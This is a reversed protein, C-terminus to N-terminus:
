ITCASCVIKSNHAEDENGGENRTRKRLSTPNVFSLKKQPTQLRTYYVGTKLGVSNGYALLSIVHHNLREVGINDVNIHINFSQGQDIFRQRDAALDIENRYDVEYVTKLCDQIHKPLESGQVSGRNTLIYKHLTDSIPEGTLKEIHPNVVSLSVNNLNYSYYNAFPVEFSETVNTIISSGATPMACTTLINRVGHLVIENRLSAWDLTLTAPQRPYHQAYLDFQFLGRALPTKEFEKHPGYQKALQCSTKLTHYYITEYIKSNFRKFEISDRTWMKLMQVDSLGNAGIGIARYKSAEKARESVYPQDVLTDVAEALIDVTSGLSEYDYDGNEKLFRLLCITGLTCVAMMKDNTVQMIEACLNSTEITGLHAQNSMYNVNDKNVIYVRGSETLSKALLNCLTTMPLEYAFRKEAVYQNYVRSYDEGYLGSLTNVDEHKAFFYWKENPISIRKYFENPIMLGLMCKDAHKEYQPNVKELCALVSLHMLDMYVAGDGTKTNRTIINSILSDFLDMEGEIGRSICNSGPYTPYGKGAVRSMGVGIASGNSLIQYYDGIQKARTEGNNSWSDLFCSAMQSNPLGSNRYVATSFNAKGEYLMHFINLVKEVPLRPYFGFATRLYVQAPTEGSLTVMDNLRQLGNPTLWVPNPLKVLTEVVSWNDYIVQKFEESCLAWIGTLYQNITSAEM